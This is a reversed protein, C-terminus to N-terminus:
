IGIRGLGAAMSAVSAVGIYTRVHNWRQWRKRYMPWIEEAASPAARALLNNLPVNFMVTVGFPGVLYALAGALLLMSGPEGLRTGANFVILACLVPAGFFLLLFIPNIITENIRQMAFMGKEAPLDGLARMVFNSFAFLLGTVLGAGTIAAVIVFTSITGM